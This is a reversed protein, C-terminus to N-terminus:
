TCLAHDYYDYTELFVIDYTGLIFRHPHSKRRKKPVVGHIGRVGQLELVCHISRTSRAIVKPIATCVMERDRYDQKRPGTCLVLRTHM